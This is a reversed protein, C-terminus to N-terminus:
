EDKDNHWDNHMILDTNYVVSGCTRCSFTTPLGQKLKEPDDSGCEFRESVKMSSREFKTGLIPSSGMRKEAVAKLATMDALEM